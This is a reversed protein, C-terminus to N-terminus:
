EEPSMNEQLLKIIEKYEKESYVTADYPHYDENYDQGVIVLYWGNTKINPMAPFFMNFYKIIWEREEHSSCYFWQASSENHVVDQSRFDPYYYNYGNEVLLEAVECDVKKRKIKKDFEELFEKYRKKTKKKTELMEEHRCASVKDTFDKGSSTRYFTKKETGVVVSETVKVDKEIKKISM